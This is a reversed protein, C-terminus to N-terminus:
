PRFERRINEEFEAQRHQKTVWPTESTAVTLVGQFNMTSAKVQFGDCQLTKWAYNYQDVTWNAPAPLKYAEAIKSVFDDPRQWKAGFPPPVYQVEYQTVRGDVFVFSYTAIGSFHEKTSYRSPSINLSVVGFAPYGEVESLVRQIDEQDASGPFLALVDATKMGLKIGRVAPAQAVKLSCPIAASSQTQSYISGALLVSLATVSFFRKM